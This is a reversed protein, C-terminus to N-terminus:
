EGFLEEVRALIARKANRIAALAAHIDPDGALEPYKEVADEVDGSRELDYKWNSLRDDHPWEMEKEEPKVPRPPAPSLNLAKKLVDQYAAESAALSADLGKPRRDLPM